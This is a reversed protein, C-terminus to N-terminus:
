CKKPYASKLNIFNFISKLFLIFAKCTFRKINHKFTKLGSLFLGIPRILKDKVKKFKIEGNQEKIFGEITCFAHAIAVPIWLTEIRKPINVKTTEIDFGNSKDDKFMPEIGFRKTYYKVSMEPNYFTTAIILPEDYKKGWTILINMHFDSDKTITSDFYSRTTGKKFDKLIESFKISVDDNNLYVSRKVRLASEVGYTKKLWEPLSPSDFERDAVVIIRKGKLWEQSQLKEIVPTFVQKWHEFSSNGRYDLVIWFLPIARGEFALSVMLVNVNRGRRKWHTRDMVLIIDPVELLIPRLLEILVPLIITPSLAENSLLRRIRQEKAEKKSGNDELAEAIDVPHAKVGELLCAVVTALLELRTKNISIGLKKIFAKIKETLVKHNKM